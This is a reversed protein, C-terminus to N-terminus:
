QRGEPLSVMLDLLMWLASRCADLHHEAHALMQPATTLYPGGDVLEDICADVLEELSEGTWELHFQLGVVRGNNLTFAQNACADSSLTPKVGEPLDFTDSHWHGVVLVDPFVGFLPDLSSSATRRVPYWGIEPYDNRRVRGGAVEALIQAGLCVGLVFIGADIAEAVFRKEAPLWPNKTHDDASMPGGLVVLFDIESVPPHEETVALSETIDFGRGTAWEAISAPGEYPVHKLVHM